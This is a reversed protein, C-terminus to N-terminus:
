AIRRELASFLLGEDVLGVPREGCQTIGMTYISGTHALTSPLPEIATELVDYIGSVEDVPFVWDSGQYLAVLFRTAPLYAEPTSEGVLPHLSVCPYMEGRVVTIGLLIDSRRHPISRVVSPQRIERLFVARLALWSQGVRFALYPITSALVVDKKRALLESWLDLYDNPASRALLKNGGTSYVRCNRCHGLKSLESCSRDGWVGIQTWCPIDFNQELAGESM